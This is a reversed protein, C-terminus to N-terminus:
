LIMGNQKTESERQAFELLVNEWPMDTRIRFLKPNTPLARRSSNDFSFSVVDGEKPKPDFHHPDVNFTAGDARRFIITLYLSLPSLPPLPTQYPLITASERWQCKGFGGTM